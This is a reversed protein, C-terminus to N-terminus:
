PASVSGSNAGVTLHNKAKRKLGKRGKKRRGWEALQKKGHKRARALGGLRGLEAAAKNKEAEPKM